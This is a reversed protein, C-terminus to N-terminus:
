LGKTKSEDWLVYIEELNLDAFDQGAQTIKDEIYNFRRTFKDNCAQLAQEPEINKMRAVNVLAFFIDGWEEQVEAENEARGLEEIEERVKELAGDVTPWDFGVRAAKEQIKEARMLAPLIKPIGGLLNQQGERRKFGDWVEMVEDGTQLQKADGFVHPHRLVMKTSVSQAVDSFDFHGERQALAAHFVVQLLLDGLEERLKHMDNENIAEIVEYSEEILYRILSEHTQERDWPCGQPGLLRDMVQILEDIAKGANSM